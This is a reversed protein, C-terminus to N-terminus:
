VRQKCLLVCVKDHGLYHRLTKGSAVDWLRATQDSSAIQQSRDEFFKGTVLMKSDLSFM